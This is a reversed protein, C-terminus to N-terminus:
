DGILRDIETDVLSSIRKCIERSQKPAHGITSNPLITIFVALGNDCIMETTYAKTEKDENYQKMNDFMIEAADGPTMPNLFM